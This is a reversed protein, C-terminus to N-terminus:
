NDLLRAIRAQTSPTAGEIHMSHTTEEGSRYDIDSDVSCLGDSQIGLEQAFQVYHALDGQKWQQREDYQEASYKCHGPTIFGHSDFDGCEASEPTVTQFTFDITIM